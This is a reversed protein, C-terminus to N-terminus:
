GKEFFNDRGVHAECTRKHRKWSAKQCAESCYKSQLCRSCYMLDCEKECSDCKGTVSSSASTVSLPTVTSSSSPVAPTTSVRRRSSTSSANSKSSTVGGDDHDDSAFSRGSRTIRRRKTAQQSDDESPPLPVAPPATTLPTVNAQVHLRSRPRTRSRRFRSRQRPRAFTVPPHPGFEFALHVFTDDDDGFSGFLFPHMTQGTLHMDVLDQQVQEAMRHQVQEAMRNEVAREFSREAANFHFPFNLQSALTDMFATAIAPNEVNHIGQGFLGFLLPGIFDMIEEFDMGRTAHEATEKIRLWEVSEPLTKGFGDFFAKTVFVARCLPCKCPRQTTYWEQACKGHFFHGCELYVSEQGAFIDKCVACEDLLNLSTSM